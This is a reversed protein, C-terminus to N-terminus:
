GSERCDPCPSEAYRVPRDDEGCEVSAVVGAGYCAACLGVGAFARRVAVQRRSPPLGRVVADVEDEACEIHVHGAGHCQPCEGVRLTRPSRGQLTVLEGVEFCVDCPTLVGRFSGEDKVEDDSV